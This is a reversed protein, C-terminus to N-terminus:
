PERREIWYRNELEGKLTYEKDSQIEDIMMNAEAVSVPLSSQCDIPRCMVAWRILDARHIHRGQGPKIDLGCLITLVKERYDTM